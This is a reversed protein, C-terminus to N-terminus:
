VTSEQDVVCHRRSEHELLACTEPIEALESAWRCGRRLTGELYQRYVSKGAVSIQYGYTGLAKLLRQVAMLQFERRFEGEPMEEGRLQLFYGIADEIEDDPLDISDLLLSVLDYSLPGMRADQFDILYLQGDRVMLNRIQLDRHCLWRPREALQRCIWELEAVLDSRDSLEISRFSGLYRRRFFDLEWSLKAFDFATRAAHQQPQLAKTGATQIAAISEIALRICRRREESGSSRLHRQLTLDGLDQQLVVGCAGDVAHIRPVALGIGAFLRHVEEFPFDDADFPEPYVTLILSEGEEPRLRFYQRTSADGVLRDIRLEGGKGFRGDLFSQLRQVAAQAVSQQIAPFTVGSLRSDAM